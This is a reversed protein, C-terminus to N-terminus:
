KSSVKRKEIAALMLKVQKNSLKVGQPSQLKITKM